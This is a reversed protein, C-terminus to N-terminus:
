QQIWESLDLSQNIARRINASAIAIGVSSLEIRGLVSENWYRIMSEFGDIKNLLSLSEEDTLLNKNHFDSIDKQITEDIGENELFSRFRSENIFDFQLLKDNNFCPIIYNQIQDPFRTIQEKSFGKSFLGSYSSKILQPLSTIVPSISACGTYALHQLNSFKIPANGMFPQVLIKLFPAFHIISTVGSNFTYRTTHVLSLINLQDTTLKGIVNISENLVIQILNRNPQLTRDILLNLLLEELNSDGSRAFERQASFLAYQMDPDRALNLCDPNIQVIKHLFGDLLRQAREQALEAAENSLRLFNSNFVDMAVQRVELYGMGNFTVDRGAQINQSADGGSQTLERDNIM